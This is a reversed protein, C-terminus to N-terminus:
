YYYGADDNCNHGEQESFIAGCEVCKISKAPHGCRKPKVEM